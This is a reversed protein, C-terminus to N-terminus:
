CFCPNGRCLLLHRDSRLGGQRLNLTLFPLKSIFLLILNRYGGGKGVSLIPCGANREETCQVGVHSPLMGATLGERFTPSLAAVAPPSSPFTNNPTKRAVDGRDRRAALDSDNM